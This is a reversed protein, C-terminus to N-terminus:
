QTTQTSAEESTPTEKLVLSLLGFDFDPVSRHIGFSKQVQQIKKFPIKDYTTFNPWTLVMEKNSPLRRTSRTTLVSISYARARQSFKKAPEKTLVQPGFCERVRVLKRFNNIGKKQDLPTRRCRGKGCAWCYEIGEGALECHFKPTHDSEVGLQQCIYELPQKFDICNTM